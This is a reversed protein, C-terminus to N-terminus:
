PTLLEFYGIQKEDEWIHGLLGNTDYVMFEHEGVQDLTVPRLVGKEYFYILDFQEPRRIITYERM